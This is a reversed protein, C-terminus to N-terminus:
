RNCRTDIYFLASANLGWAYLLVGSLIADFVVIGQFVTLKRRLFFHVM